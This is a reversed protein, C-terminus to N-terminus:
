MGEPYYLRWRTSYARKSLAYDLYFDFELQPQEFLNLREAPYGTRELLFGIAQRYPYVFKLDDLLKRLRRISIRERASAYMNMVEHIGGAYLPRVTCDILTRELSTTPYKRGDAASIDVVEIKGTDQGSILVLEYEENTYVQATVRAPKAFARDIADQTLSRIRGDQQKPAQEKNTYVVRPVIDTLGHVYAASLHSLYSSSRIALATEMPTVDPTVYLTLENPYSSHTAQDRLSFFTRVLLKTRVLYDVFFETHLTGPFRWDDRKESLLKELSHVTYTREQLSEVIGPRADRLRLKWLDERKLGM